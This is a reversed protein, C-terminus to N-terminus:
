EKVADPPIWGQTAFFKHLEKEISKAMRKADDEVTASFEESGVALAGSLAASAGLHGAAAGAGMTEAMGPKYGSKADADFENVLARKGGRADYIQVLTKVNTRGAGLGIVVRETRNGEDISIFQGDIELINGELPLNGSSLRAPMGLAQIDTVLHKALASAVARGVAREEETRPTKKVYEEIRASIGRDLKVEDPSVAFEYVYIQDPRPMQVSTESLTKVKTPACATLILIICASIRLIINGNISM